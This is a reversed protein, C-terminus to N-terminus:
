LFSPSFFPHSLHTKNRYLLLVKLNPIIPHRETKTDRLKHTHATHTLKEEEEEEEKEKKKEKKFFFFYIFKFVRTPHLNTKNHEEVVKLHM